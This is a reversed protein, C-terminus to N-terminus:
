RARGQPEGAKGASLLLVPVQRASAGGFGPCNRLQNKRDMVKVNMM